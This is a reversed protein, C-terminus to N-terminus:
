GGVSFPYTGADRGDLTLQVECDGPSWGGDPLCSFAYGSDPYNETLVVTRSCDAYPAGGVIWTATIASGIGFDGKGVVYAEESPGFSTTAEVPQYDDTAGKAM